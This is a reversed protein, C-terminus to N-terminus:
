IDFKFVKRCKSVKLSVYIVQLYFYILLKLKRQYVQSADVRYWMINNDKLRKTFTNLVYNIFHTKGVGKKGTIYVDKRMVDSSFDILSHWFSSFNAKTNAYSNGDYPDHKPWVYSYRIAASVDPISPNARIWGLAERYYELIANSKSWLHGRVLNDDVIKPNMDEFYELPREYNGNLKLPQKILDDIVKM